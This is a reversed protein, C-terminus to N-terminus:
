HEFNLTEFRACEESKARNADSLEQIALDKDHVRESWDAMADAVGSRCEGAEDVLTMVESMISDIRGATEVRQRSAEARAEM